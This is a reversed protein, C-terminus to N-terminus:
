LCTMPTVYGLIQSKKKWKQSFVAIQYMICSKPSQIGEVAFHSDPTKNKKTTTTIGPLHSCQDKIVAEFHKFHATSIAICHFTCAPTSPSLLECGLM